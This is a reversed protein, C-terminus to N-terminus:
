DSGGPCHDIGDCIETRNICVRLGGPCEWEFWHGCEFPPPASFFLIYMFVFINKSSSLNHFILIYITM